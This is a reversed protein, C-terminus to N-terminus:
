VLIIMRESSTILIRRIALYSTKHTRFTAFRLSYGVISSNLAATIVPIGILRVQLATVFLFLVIFILISIIHVTSLGQTSMRRHKIVACRGRKMSPPRDDIEMSDM